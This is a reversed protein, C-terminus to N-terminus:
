TVSEYIRRVAASQTQLSFRQRQRAQLSAGYTQAYGEDVAIKRLLMAATSLDGPRYLAANTVSGVTEVHGGSAVAVVPLAISMAELVALGQAEIRCPAFLTAAGYLYPWPDSKHGVLDVHGSLQLAAIRKEITPAMTGEGVFVLRWDDHWLNSEHFAILADVPRKEEELRQLVLLTKSTARQTTADRPPVGAPIVEAPTEIADAVYQSVAIQASIRSAILPALVQHTGSARRRAFHRTVVVPRSRTLLTSAAEAHTMHAHVVDFSLSRLQRAAAWPTAGPLWHFGGSAPMAEPSGGIVTVMEGALHQENALSAVHSEVGAFNATCVVHVIHLPTM